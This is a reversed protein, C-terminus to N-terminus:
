LIDIGGHLALEESGPIVPASSARFGLCEDLVFAEARNIM